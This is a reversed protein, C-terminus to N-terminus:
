TTFHQIVEETLAGLLVAGGQDITEEHAHSQWLNKVPSVPPVLTFSHVRQYVVTVITLIVM